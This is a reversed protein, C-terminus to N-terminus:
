SGVDVVGANVIQGYLTRRSDLNMVRITQGKGGAELARGVSTLELSGSRFRLTVRANREILTVPGIDRAHIPRGPYLRRRAEMGLVAAINQAVDSAPRHRATALAIDDAGIVSGVPITRVPTVVSHVPGKAFAAASFVVALALTVALFADPSRGRM